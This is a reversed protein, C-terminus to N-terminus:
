SSSNPIPRIIPRLPTRGNFDVHLKFSEIIFILPRLRHPHCDLDMILMKYLRTPPSSVVFKCISKLLLSTYFRTPNGSAILACQGVESEFGMSWSVLETLM